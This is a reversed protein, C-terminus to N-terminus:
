RGLTLHGSRDSTQDRDLIQEVRTRSVGFHRAITTLGAGTAHMHLMAEDRDSLPRPPMLRSLPDDPRLSPETLAQHLDALSKPGVNTVALLDEESLSQAEGVTTIGARVLAAITRVRLVFIAISDKEDTVVVREREKKDTTM